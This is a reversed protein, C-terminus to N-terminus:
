KAAIGAAIGAALIPWGLWPTSGLTLVLTGAIVGTAAVTLWYRQRRQEAIQTRLQELEPSQLRLQIKGTAAQESLTHIAAPLERLADRLQPLNDRVDKLLARGGVQEDM